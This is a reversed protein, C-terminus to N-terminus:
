WALTQRKVIDNKCFATICLFYARQMSKDIIYEQRFWNLFFSAQISIDVHLLHCLPLDESAFCPHSHNQPRLPVPNNLCCDFYGDRYGPAVVTAVTNPPLLEAIHTMSGQIHTHTDVNTQYDGISM